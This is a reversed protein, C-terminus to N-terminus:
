ASWNPLRPRATRGLRRRACSRSGRGVGGEFRRTLIRVTEDFAATTRRAIELEADLDLLEFYAQAVTSV